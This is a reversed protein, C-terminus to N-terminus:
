PAPHARRASIVRAPPWVQWRLGSREVDEFGLDELLRALEATARTELLAVAGGPAVVRALEEVAAERDEIGLHAGLAHVGVLGALSADGAAVAGPEVHDVTAHRGPPLSGRLRELEAPLGRTASRALLLAQALLMLAALGAVGAIRPSGLGLAVAAFLAAAAAAAAYPRPADARLIFASALSVGDRPLPGGM